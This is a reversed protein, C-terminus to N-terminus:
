GGLGWKGAGMWRRRNVSCASIRMINRSNKNHIQYQCTILSNGARRTIRTNRQADAIGAGGARFHQFRQGGQVAADRLPRGILFDRQFDPTPTAKPPRRASTVM